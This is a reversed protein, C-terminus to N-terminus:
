VTRKNSARMYIWQYLYMFLGTAFLATGAFYFMIGPDKKIILNVYAKRNLSGKRKPAFDKLHISFGRFWVPKLISITKRQTYAGDMLVIKAVPNLARKRFFGLRNEEYFQIEMSELKVSCASHPIKISKGPVLINNTYNISLLYSSLCGLLIVLFAYHMIHPAFKLFFRAPSSFSSRYRLLALIKTTTCVFTNASLLFLLVLLIFFWATFRLYGFGYTTIWEQLGLDNLPIFLDTHSKLSFFGVVLDVVIMLLLAFTFHISGVSDWINRLATAM